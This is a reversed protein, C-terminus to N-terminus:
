IHILSLDLYGDQSAPDHYFNMQFDDVGIQKIFALRENTLENLQGLGIRM